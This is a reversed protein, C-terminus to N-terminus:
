LHKWESIQNSHIEFNKALEALTQDSTIAALATRAKASNRHM